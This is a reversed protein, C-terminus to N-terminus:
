PEEPHLAGRLLLAHVLHDRTTPRYRWTLPWTLGNLAPVPIYSVRNPGATLRTVGDGCGVQLGEAGTLLPRHRVCDPTSPIHVGVCVLLSEGLQVVPM